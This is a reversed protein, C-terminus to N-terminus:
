EMFKGIIDAIAISEDPTFKYSNSGKNIANLFESLEYRLGDGDFKVFVKQTKSLDEFRIEFYETKWWPAPVWIYGKTGAVVMDGEKKVGIGVTATAM